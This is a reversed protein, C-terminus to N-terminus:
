GAVAADGMAKPAGAEGTAGMAGRIHELDGPSLELLGRRLQYGWNPGATLDLAGQLSGIPAPVADRLYDM